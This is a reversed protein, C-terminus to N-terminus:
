LNLVKSLNFDKGNWAITGCCIQPDHEFVVMWEEEVALQLYQKKEEITKLPYLDYAMVWPLPVHASTPLLDAAFLLKKEGGSVLVMQQGVSHGDIPLTQIGPFLETKGDLLKLQGNEKLPLYNEPFYSARDKESPNMGWDFQRKQLYYAANPFTPRIEGREDRSTAGGAHDFHLHTLIVDTIDAPTLGEKKLSNRLNHESDEAAYIRAFKEDYKNGIGTDVLILRDEGKLLLLNCGMQIRNAEDAPKKKEWLARPVVGFMAGGDLRFLGANLVKVDYKGIQM